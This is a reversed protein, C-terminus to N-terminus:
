DRDYLFLRRFKEWFQEGAVVIGVLFLLDLLIRVYLLVGEDVALLTPFYLGAWQALTSGFILTVGLYYRPELAPGRLWALLNGKLYAFGEKGMLAVSLLILVEPGGVVLAGMLLGSWAKPLGLSPVALAALPTLWALVFCAVGLKLRM